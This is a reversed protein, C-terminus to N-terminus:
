GGAPRGRRTYIMRFDLQAVLACDTCDDVLDDGRVPDSAVEFGLAQYLRVCEEARRAEIVFRREWGAALRAPDAELRASAASRAAEARLLADIAGTDHRPPRPPDEAPLTV